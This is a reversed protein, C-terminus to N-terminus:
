LVPKLLARSRKTSVRTRTALNEEFMQEPESSRKGLIELSSVSNKRAYIYICTIYAVNALISMIKSYFIVRNPSLDTLTQSKKERWRCQFKRKERPRKRTALSFTGPFVNWPPQVSQWSAPLPPLFPFVGKERTGKDIRERGTGRAGQIAGVVNWRPCLQHNM